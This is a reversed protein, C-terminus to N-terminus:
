PLSFEVMPDIWSCHQRKQIGKYVYLNRGSVSDQVLDRPTQPLLKVEQIWNRAYRYIYINRTVSCRLIGTFTWSELVLLRARDLNVKERGLSWKRSRSLLNWRLRRFIFATFPATPSVFNWHNLSPVQSSEECHTTVSTKGHNELPWLKPHQVLPSIKRLIYM